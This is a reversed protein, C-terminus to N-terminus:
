KRIGEKFFNLYLRAAALNPLEQTNAYNGTLLLVPKARISTFCCVFYSIYGNYGKFELIYAQSDKYAVRIKDDDGRLFAISSVAKQDFTAKTTVFSNQPIKDLSSRLSTLTAPSKIMSVLQYNGELTTSFMEEKDPFNINGYLQDSISDFLGSELLSLTKKYAAWDFAEPNKHSVFLNKAMRLKVAALDTLQKPSAEYTVTKEENLYIAFAHQAELYQFYLTYYMDNQIYIVSSSDSYLIKVDGDKQMSKFKETTVANPDKSKVIHLRGDFGQFHKYPLMDKFGAYYYDPDNSDINLDCLKWKFEYTGGKSELEYNYPLDINLRTGDLSVTHYLNPIALIDKICSLCPASIDKAPPQTGTSNSHNGCASILLATLLTLIISGSIKKHHIPM